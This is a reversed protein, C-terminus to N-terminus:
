ITTISQAPNKSSIRYFKQPSFNAFKFKQLLSHRIKPLLETSIKHQFIQLNKALPTQVWWMILEKSRKALLGQKGVSHSLDFMEIVNEVSLKSLLYKEAYVSLDQIQYKDALVFLDHVHDGINEVRGLYIFRLIEIFHSEDDELEVIGQATERM